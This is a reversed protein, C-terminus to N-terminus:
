DQCAHATTKNKNATFNIWVCLLSNVDDQVRQSVACYNQGNIVHRPKVSPWCSRWSSLVFAPFLVSCKFLVNCQWFLLPFLIWHLPPLSVSSFFFLRQAFQWCLFAFKGTGEERMNIPGPATSASEQERARCLDWLGEASSSICLWLSKWLPLATHLGPDHYSWNLQPQPVGM